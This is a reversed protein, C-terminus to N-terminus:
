YTPSNDYEGFVDFTMKIGTVDKDIWGENDLLELEEEIDKKGIREAIEQENLECYNDDDVNSSIVGLIVAAYVSLDSDQLANKPVTVFYSM